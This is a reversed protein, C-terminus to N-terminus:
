DGGVGVIALGESETCDGGAYVLLLNEIGSKRVRGGRGRGESESVRRTVDSRLDSNLTSLLHLTGIGAVNPRLGLTLLLTASVNRCRSRLGSADSPRAGLRGATACLRTGSEYTGRPRRTRRLIYIVECTSLYETLLYGAGRKTENRRDRGARRNESLARGSRDDRVQAWCGRGLRGDRGKASRRACSPRRLMTEVSTPLSPPQRVRQCPSPLPPQRTHLPPPECM